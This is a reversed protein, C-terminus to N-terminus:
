LKQPQKRLFQFEYVTEVFCIKVYEKLIYKGINESYDPVEIYETKFM